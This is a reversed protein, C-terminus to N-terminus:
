KILGQPAFGTQSMKPSDPKEKKDNLKILGKRLLKYIQGMSLDKLFIRIIRDLRRGDDDKGATFDRFEM